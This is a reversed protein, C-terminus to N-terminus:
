NGAPSFHVPDRWDLENRLPAGIEAFIRELNEYDTADIAGWNPPGKQSHNSARGACRGPCSPQGCMALCLSESYVPDRFGSTLYGTWGAKRARALWNVTKGDPGPAAGVMWAAVRVPGAPSRRQIDDAFWALGDKAPPRRHEERLKRFNGRRNRAREKMAPTREKSHTLIAYIHRTIEGDGIQKLQETSLGQWAAAYRAARFTHSGAVGDIGCKLWKLNANGLTRDVEVQLHRIEEGGQRQWRGRQGARRKDREGRHVRVAAPNAM